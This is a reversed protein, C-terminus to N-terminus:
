KQRGPRLTPLMKLGAAQDLQKLESIASGFGYSANQLIYLTEGDKVEVALEARNEALSYLTHKGASVPFVLYQGGSTTGKISGAQTDDLTVTMSALSQDNLPRLIYIMGTGTAVAKQDVSNVAVSTATASASTATAPAAAAVPAEEMPMCVPPPTTACGAMVLSVASVLGLQRLTFVSM